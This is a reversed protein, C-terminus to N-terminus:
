RYKISSRRSEIRSYESQSVYLVKSLQKQTYGQALRLAKLNIM